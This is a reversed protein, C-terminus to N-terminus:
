QPINLWVFSFMLWASDIILAVGVKLSMRMVTHEDGGSKVINVDTMSESDTLDGTEGEGAGAQQWVNHMDNDYVPVLQLVDHVDNGHHM